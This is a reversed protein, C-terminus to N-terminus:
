SGAPEMLLSDLPLPFVPRAGSLGSILTVFDVRAATEREPDIIAQARQYYYELDKTGDYFFRVFSLISDLFHRYGDEYLGFAATELDPRRLALDATETLQRAGLMALAVGTSFLPDIFAAADGVLAWGPGHFRGCRYSWDRASRFGSVQRATSLMRKLETSEDVKSAFLKPLDLGTAVAHSSPSVYGVSMTGDHLPIGWFWGGPVNEVLINGAEDGALRGHDQFYTWVAVNKLDEHWELDAQERGIVRSQGSADVVLRARAQRSDDGGRVVYRVGVVRGDETCVERVTAEEVVRAGLERARTLLLADFDARRVQYSYEYPGGEIFTFSWRQKQSGWVLSGGFKRVFGLADLRERIGLEEVVSLFGTILSEGIHYRPFKERELLLVRHGRKTLLGATSSGAPGAGVVIVDYEEIEPTNQV